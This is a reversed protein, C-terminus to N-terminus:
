LDLGGRSVLNRAGAIGLARVKRPKGCRSYM